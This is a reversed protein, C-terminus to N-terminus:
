DSSCGTDVARAGLMATDGEMLINDNDERRISGFRGNRNCYVARHRMDCELRAQGVLFPVTQCELTDEVGSGCKAGSVVVEHLHHDALVIVDKLLDRKRVIIRSDDEGTNHVCRVGCRDGGFQVNPKVDMKRIGGLVTVVGGEKDCCAGINGNIEDKTEREDLCSACNSVKDVIDTFYLVQQTIRKGDIEFM